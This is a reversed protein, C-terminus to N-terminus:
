EHNNFKISRIWGGYYKIQDQCLVGHPSEASSVTRLVKSDDCHDDRYATMTLAGAWSVLIYQGPTDFTLCTYKGPDTPHADVKTGDQSTEGPGSQKNCLRDDFGGIWNEIHPDSGDRKIVSTATSPLTEFTSITAPIALAGASLGTILITITPFYM